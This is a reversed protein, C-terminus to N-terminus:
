VGSADPPMRELYYHMILDLHAPLKDETAKLWDRFGTLVKHSAPRHQFVDSTRCLSSRLLIDQELCSIIQHSVFKFIEIFTSSRWWRGFAAPNPRERELLVSEYVNFPFDHIEEISHILRMVSLFDKVGRAADTDWLHVV